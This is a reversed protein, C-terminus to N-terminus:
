SASSRPKGRRGAGPGRRRARAAVGLGLAVWWATSVPSSGQALRCGCGAPAAASDTLQPNSPTSGGTPADGAVAVPVGAGGGSGGGSVPPGGGNGASPPTGASGGGGDTGGAGGEGPEEAPLEVTRFFDMYLDWDFQTLDHVGERLHYGVQQGHVHEGIAPWQDTGLASYGFLAYVPAAHVAALFEGEPDAWADESASAVYVARPAMLAILEHQDVPLNEPTGNYDRYKLAFWHPFGNNIDLISEGVNRRALSAGGEGSDNSIALAFREDTAGAVLATKGGRSHGVVAVRKADILADTEFYDMARSAGWAWARLAGWTSEGRVGGDFLQHVGNNFADEDPDIDGYHFAAIGYGEAIVSEAPWFESKIVRTPDTNSEARNNILLFTAVPAGAAANPVFMTLRLTLSDTAAQNPLTIEVQKLTADGGMAQADVNVVEFTMGAPRGVSPRGYVHEEFLDLLRGRQESQWQQASTILSGDARALANPLNLEQAEARPARGLVSLLGSVLVVSARMGVHTGRFLYEM